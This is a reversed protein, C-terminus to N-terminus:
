SFGIGNRGASELMTAALEVLYQKAEDETDAYGVPWTTLRGGVSMECRYRGDRGLRVVLTIGEYDTARAGEIWTWERSLNRRRRYARWDMWLGVCAGVMLSAGLVFLINISPLSLISLLVAMVATISLAASWAYRTRRELFRGIKSFM